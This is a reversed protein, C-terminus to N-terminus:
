PNLTDFSDSQYNTNEVSGNYPQPIFSHQNQDNRPPSQYRSPYYIQVPQQYPQQYPPQYNESYDPNSPHNNNYQRWLSRDIPRDQFHVTPQRRRNQPTRSRKSPQNPTFRNPFSNRNQPGPTRTFCNRAVHGVINCNFCCPM